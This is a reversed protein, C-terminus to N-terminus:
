SNNNYKSKWFWPFFFHVFNSVFTACAPLLGFHKRRLYFYEFPNNGLPSFFNKWRKRLPQSPDMWVTPREHRDCEGMVGPAIWIEIGHKGASYGYDTDGGAHRFYPDNTGLDEYVCRPVLVINGNFTDCKSQAAVESVLQNNVWGGYTIVEKNNLACTSGVIIVKDGHSNSCEALRSIVDSYLFTDDNLWLYFDFDKKAAEKWAAVMGRNWFLSGDGQIINVKPFGARVADQTGDTCGDDTLFVDFKIDDPIAQAYLNALCSLTKEKRNHVTLLVAIKSM